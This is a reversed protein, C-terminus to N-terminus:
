AGDEAQPEEPLEPLEDLSGLNFRRLFETTTGYLPARSAGQTRGVVEILGLEALTQVMRDSRVGRLAEIEGRTVPQRYAVLTLVELAAPSLAAPSGPLVDQLLEGHEPATLLAVHGEQWSLQIGHGALQQECEELLVRVEMATTSLLLALEEETHGRGSAFLLAEIQQWTAM